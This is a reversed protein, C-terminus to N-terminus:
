PSWRWVSIDNVKEIENIHVVVRNGASGWMMHQVICYDYTKRRIIYNRTKLFRGGQKLDIYDGESITLM